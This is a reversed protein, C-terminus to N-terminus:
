YISLKEKKIEGLFAERINSKHDKKEVKSQYGVCGGHETM